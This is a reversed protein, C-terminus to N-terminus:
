RAARRAEAEREAEERAADDGDELADLVDHAQMLEDFSIVSKLEALSFHVRDSTM